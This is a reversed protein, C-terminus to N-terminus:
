ILVELAEAGLAEVNSVRAELFGTASDVCDPSWFEHALADLISQSVDLRAMRTALTAIDSMARSKEDDSLCPTLWSRLKNGYARDAKLDDVNWAPGSFCHGHDIM